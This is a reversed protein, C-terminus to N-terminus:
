AASAADLLYPLGDVHGLAPDATDKTLMSGGLALNRDTTVIFFPQGGVDDLQGPLIATVAITADRRHQASGAPLHIVLPDLPDPPALPQLDRVLLRLPGPEPEIVTGADPQPRFPGVM